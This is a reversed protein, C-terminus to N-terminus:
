KDKQKIKRPSPRLKIKCDKYQFKNRGDHRENRLTKTRLIEKELWGTKTEHLCYM